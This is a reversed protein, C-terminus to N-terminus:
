PNSCGIETQLIRSLKDRLTDSARGNARARFAPMRARLSHSPNEFDERTDSRVFTRDPSTGATYPCPKDRGSRTPAPSTGARGHLPPAQGQGVTHGREM